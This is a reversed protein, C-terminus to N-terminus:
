ELVSDLKLTLLSKNKLNELKVESPLIEVVQWDGVKAGNGVLKGGIVASPSDTNYVIGKLSLDLGLPDVGVSEFSKAEPKSIELSVAKPLSVPLFSKIKDFNLFVVVAAVFLIFGVGFVPSVMAIKKPQVSRPSVAPAAVVVPSVVAPSEKSKKKELVSLYDYLISM